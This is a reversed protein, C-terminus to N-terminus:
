TSEGEDLSQAQDVQTLIEMAQEHHPDAVLIQAGGQAGLAPHLGGEDDMSIHVKIGATELFGKAMEPEHRNPYRKVLKM